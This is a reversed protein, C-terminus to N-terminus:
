TVIDEHEEVRLLFCTWSKNRWNGAWNWVRSRIQTRQYKEYFSESIDDAIVNSASHWQSSTFVRSRVFTTSSSVSSLQPRHFTAGRLIKTGSYALSKLRLVESVCGLSLVCCCCLTFSHSVQYFHSWWFIKLWRTSSPTLPPWSFHSLDQHWSLPCLMLTCGNTFQKMLSVWLILMIMM